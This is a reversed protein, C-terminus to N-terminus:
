ASAEYFFEGTVSKNGTTAWATRAPVKYMTVTASSAPLASLGGSITVGEESQNASWSAHATSTYPVTFTTTASDSTGAFSYNVFVTKGIKKTMIFGTKGAAWGVITSTAFYDSWVGEEAPKPSFAFASSGEVCMAGDFYASTDGTTVQDIVRIRTATADVLLTATLFQWTSNGTHYSSYADNVAGDGVNIRARSAVTAYVWKGLTVYRGKYNAYTPIDQYLSANAGARTIKVSYTGLKIITEERAVSAGAGALTWGDPAASAGASWAEFDGNSLLNTPNETGDGKVNGQPGTPGTPGPLLDKNEIATAASNWGLIKDAVPVPLEADVGTVSIPIKLTRDTDEGIEQDILARRDLDEELTDAPFQNFDDYDSEQVLATDRYVTYTYATSFTPSVTVVGGVGDAAPAVSYDTSYTLLTETGSSVAVVKIYEPHDTLSRFTYTLTGQGGAFSQKRATTEVTM